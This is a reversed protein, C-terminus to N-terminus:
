LFLSQGDLDRPGYPKHDDLSCEVILTCICYIHYCYASSHYLALERMGTPSDRPRLESFVGM